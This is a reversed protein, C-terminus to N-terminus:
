ERSLPGLRTTPTFVEELSVRRRKMGPNASDPPLPLKYEYTVWGPEVWYRLLFTKLWDRTRVPSEHQLFTKLEASYALLADPDNLIISVDDLGEEARDLTEQTQAKLNQLERNRKSYFDYDIDGNEFTLYLRALRQDFEALRKRLDDILEISNSRVFTSDKRLEEIAVQLQPLSLIDNEAVNLTLTEFEEAPLYPSDCGDPGTGFDKRNKCVIYRYIKGDRGAPLYNYNSGCQRCKGLRTLLKESGAAAANISDNARSQLLKEVKSFELPKVIGEHAGECITTPTGDPNKGWTITGEYHRNTLMDHIRNPPWPKGKPNLIGQDLLARAIQRETKHQLALDFSRRVVPASEPDPALKNRMKDGDPVSVKMMGYPASRALFFGRAALNHTGRRVEEGIIKSSYEDISEILEELLQGTASDDTKETISLARVGEKRLRNKYVASEERNRFFRSFRWVLVVEFPCDPRESTEIMEQFDARKALTGTKAKDTFVKVIIYGNISAWRRIHELQAETSNEVDQGSSSVRIYAAAPILGDPREWHTRKVTKKRAM